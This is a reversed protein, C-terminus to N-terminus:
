EESNYFHGAHRYHNLSAIDFGIKGDKSLLIMKTQGEDVLYRLVITIISSEM